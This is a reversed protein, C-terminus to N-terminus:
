VCLSLRGLVVAQGPVLLLFFHSTLFIINQVTSVLQALDPCLELTSAHRAWCLLWPLVGKRHVGLTGVTLMPNAMAVGRQDRQTLLYISPDVAGLSRISSCDGQTEDIPAM